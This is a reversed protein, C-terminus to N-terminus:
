AADRAEILSSGIAAIVNRLWDATPKVNGNEVNSLYPASIGAARGVDDLTLGAAKRLTRMATGIEANNSDAM